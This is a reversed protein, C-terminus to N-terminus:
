KDRREADRAISGAMGYERWGAGTQRVWWTPFAADIARQSAALTNDGHNRARRLVRVGCRKEHGPIHKM